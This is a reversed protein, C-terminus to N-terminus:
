KVIRVKTLNHGWVINKPKPKGYTILYHCDMCLTRCNDMSFRLEVYESWKQIHDVQLDGGSGCMQCTYNDRKFVLKQMSNQFKARQLKDLTTIGGKWNWHKDGKNKGFNILKDPNVKWTKGVNSGIKGLKALRMKEITEPTHHKGKFTAKTNYPRHGKNFGKLGRNWGPGDKLGNINVPKCKRCYGKSHKSTAHWYAKYKLSRERKCNPCIVLYIKDKKFM